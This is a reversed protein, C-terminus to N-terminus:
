EGSASARFASVWELRRQRTLDPATKAGLNAKWAATGGGISSDLQAQPSRM